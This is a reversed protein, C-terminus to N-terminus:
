APQLAANRWQRWRRGEIVVRVALGFITLGIGVRMGLDCNAQLIAMAHPPITQSSVVLWHGARMIGALIGMILAVSVNLLPRPFSPAIPVTPPDIVTLLFRQNAALLDLM